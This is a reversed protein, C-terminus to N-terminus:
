PHEHSSWTGNRMRDYHDATFLNKTKTEYRRINTRDKIGIYLSTKGTVTSTTVNVAAFSVHQQDLIQKIQRISFRRDINRRIIECQYARNRQKITCRRNHIKRRQESTLELREGGTTKPKRTEDLPTEPQEDREDEASSITEYMSPQQTDLFVQRVPSHDPSDAVLPSLEASIEIDVREVTTSPTLRTDREETNLLLQHIALCDNAAYETMLQRYQLQKTNIRQLQPDLGIDFPSRTFRKDLWQALEYAVADQLSWPNNPQIGLCGECICNGVDKGESHHAHNRQWFEKFKEQANRNNSRNIQQETFLNYRVFAKLEAINGWVHITNTPQFLSEFLQQILRLTLTASHSLHCVEVVIIYSPSCPRIVQLQILAPKNPQKHVCVSETDLTFITSHNITDILHSLTQDNTQRNIFFLRHPLPEFAPYQRALEHEHAKKRLVQRLNQRNKGTISAPINNLKWLTDEYEENSLM